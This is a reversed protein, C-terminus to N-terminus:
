LAIHRVSVRWGDSQRRFSQTVRAVGLLEPPPGGAVLLLSSSVEPREDTGGIVSNLTLHFTPQPERAWVDSVMQRIADRGQATGMGGDMLADATFLSVYGDVDRDSACSDARAVLQLLDRSDEASLTM